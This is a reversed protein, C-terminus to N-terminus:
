TNNGFHIGVVLAAIFFAIVLPPSVQDGEPKNVIPTTPKFAHGRYVHQSCAYAWKKEAEEIQTQRSHESLLEIIKWVVFAPSLFIMAVIEILVAGVTRAFTNTLLLLALLLPGSIELLEM